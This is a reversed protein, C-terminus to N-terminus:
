IWNFDIEKDYRRNKKYLLDQLQTRKLRSKGDGGINFTNVYEVLCTLLSASSTAKCAHKNFVHSTSSIIIEYICYTKGPYLM